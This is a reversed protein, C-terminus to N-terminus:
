TSQLTPKTAEPQVSNDEKYRLTVLLNFFLGQLPSSDTHLLPTLSGAPEAHSILLAWGLDVDQPHSM